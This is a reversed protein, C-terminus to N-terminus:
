NTNSMKEIYFNDKSPIDEVHLFICAALILLFLSFWFKM